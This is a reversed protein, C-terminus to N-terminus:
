LKAKKNKLTQRRHPQDRAWSSKKNCKKLFRDRM